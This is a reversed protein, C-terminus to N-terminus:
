FVFHNLEFKGVIVNGALRTSNQGVVKGTEVVIDPGFANYKIDKTAKAANKVCTSTNSASLCQSAVAGAAAGSAAMVLASDSQSKSVMAAVVAKSDNISKIANHVGESFFKASIGLLGSVDFRCYVFSILRILGLYFFGFRRYHQLQM